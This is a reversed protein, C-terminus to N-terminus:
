TEYDGRRINIAKGHADYEELEAFREVKDAIDMLAEKTYSIINSVKLFTNVDLPSFFRATGGTPLIHNPGAFYDGISEPSYEGLFIAGANKILNLISEPNEVLLELHEPAIENAIDIAEDIDKTIIILGYRDISRKALSKRNLLKLQSSVERETEKAIRESPTLLIVSENGTHESQSLLDAGIFKPNSTEDAIILIESPGAIMDVDVDGFVLRKAITVYLNGPGIIKDVKNISETGYAMAGIAQAGGIKYIEDVGALDAAVLVYPDYCSPTCMIIRKVGAVKAPVASMLVTSPYSAMGGPVYIGANEIPATKIGLKVGDKIEKFWPDIILRENFSKINEKVENLIEIDGKDIRKYADKIEHVKVRINDPDLSVKDFKKTLSVIGKDGRKKVYDLINKVVEEVKEYRRKNRNIIRKLDFKADHSRIIRM